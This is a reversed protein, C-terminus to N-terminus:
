SVTVLLLTCSRLLQLWTRESVGMPVGCNSRCVGAGSNLKYCSYMMQASTKSGVHNMQSSTINQIIVQQAWTDNKDWNCAGTPDVSEDPCEVTGTIYGTIDCNIFVRQMREKWVHWNDDMLHNQDSFKNVNSYEKTWILDVSASTYIRRSRKPAEFQLLMPSLLCQDQGQDQEEPSEM